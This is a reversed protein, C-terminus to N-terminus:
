DTSGVSGGSKLETSNVMQHPIGGFFDIAFSSAFKEVVINERAEQGVPHLEIHKRIKQSFIQDRTVQPHDRIDAIVVSAINM